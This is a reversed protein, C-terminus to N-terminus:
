TGPNRATEDQLAMVYGSPKRVALSTLVTAAVVAFNILVDNM